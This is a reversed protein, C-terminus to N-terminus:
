DASNSEAEAPSIAPDPCDQTRNDAACYIDRMVRTTARTALRGVLTPRGLAAEGLRVRFNNLKIVNENYRQTIDQKEEDLAAAKVQEAKYLDEMRNFEDRQEAVAATATAVNAKLVGNAEYSAKLAYGLGAAIIGLVVMGILMYQTM